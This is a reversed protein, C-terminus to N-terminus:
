DQLEELQSEFNEVCTEVSTLEEYVGHLLAGTVASAGKQSSLYQKNKKDLQHQVERPLPALLGADKALELQQTLAAAGAAREAASASRYLCPNGLAADLVAGYLRLARTV